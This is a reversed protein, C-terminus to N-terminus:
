AEGLSALLIEDLSVLAVFLLAWGEADAMVLALAALGFIALEIL